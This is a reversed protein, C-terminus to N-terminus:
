MGSKPSVLDPQRQVDIQIHTCQPEFLEHPVLSPVHFDSNIHFDSLVNECDTLLRQTLSFQKPLLIAICTTNTIVPLLLRLNNPVKVSEDM